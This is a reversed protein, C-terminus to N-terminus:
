NTHKQHRTKKFKRIASHVNKVTDRGLPSLTNLVSRRRGWAENQQTNADNRIIQFQFDYTDIYV